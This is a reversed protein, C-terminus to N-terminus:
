LFQLYMCLFPRAKEIDSSLVILEINLAEGDYVFPTDIKFWTNGDLSKAEPRRILCNGLFTPM